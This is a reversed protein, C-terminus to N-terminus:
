RLRRVRERDEDSYRPVLCWTDYGPPILYPEDYDGRAIRGRWGLLRAIKIDVAREPSSWPNMNDAEGESM